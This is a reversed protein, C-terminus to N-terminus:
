EVPLHHFLWTRCNLESALAALDTCQEIVDDSRGLQKRATVRFFKKAQKRIKVTDGFLDNPSM